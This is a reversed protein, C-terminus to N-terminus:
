KSGESVIPHQLVSNARKHFDLRNMAMPISEFAFNQNAIKAPKLASARRHSGLARTQSEVGKKMNM